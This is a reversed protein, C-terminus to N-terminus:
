TRRFICGTWVMETTGQCIRGDKEDAESRAKCRECMPNLKDDEIWNKSRIYECIAENYEQKMIYQCLAEQVQENTSGDMARTIEDGLGDMYGLCYQYFDRANYPTGDKRDLIMDVIM